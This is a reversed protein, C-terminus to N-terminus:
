TFSTSVFPWAKCEYLIDWIPLEMSVSIPLDLSQNSTTLSQPFSLLVSHCSIPMIKEKPLHFNESILYHHHNGVERSTSFVVSNYVKFSHIGGHSM